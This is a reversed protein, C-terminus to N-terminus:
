IYVSLVYTFIIIDYTIKFSYNILYISASGSDRVQLGPSSLSQHQLSPPQKWAHVWRSGAPRTLLRAVAVRDMCIGEQECSRDELWM